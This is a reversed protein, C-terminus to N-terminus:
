TKFQGIQMQVQESLRNLQQSGSSARDAGYAVGDAVEGISDISINIDKAVTYQEKAASAIQGAMQNIVSIASVVEELKMSANDANKVSTGARESSLEMVEVSRKAESQLKRIMDAIEGTSEQTRSALTRVEDAVVAFGRGNEGARAAEIAANLALLNTQEAIGTIVDLVQSISNSSDELRQIVGRAEQIDQSLQHISDRNATVVTRGQEVSGNAEQAADAAEAANSAVEQASTAMEHAATAVQDIENRQRQVGQNTEDAIDSASTAAAGMDHISNAVDSVLHRLKGTFANIWHALEAVESRGSVRIQRTLDGEGEALDRVMVVMTQLPKAIRGAMGWLLVLAVGGIVVAGLLSIEVTHEAKESLTADLKNVSALAVDLPLEIVVAWTSKTGLAFIPSVVQFAGNFETIWAEGKQVQALLANDNQLRGGLPQGIWGADATTAAIRGNNSIISVNGQGNYISQNLSEVMTQLFNLHIDTGAIGLFKGNMDLVPAVLSTMIVQKGQVDFVAPDIMCAQRKEMSCLYWESARTGTDTMTENYRDGIAQLTMTGDAARNWYPAFIGAEDSHTNGGVFAKDKADYQNPEWATYIGGIVENARLINALMQTHSERDILEGPLHGESSMFTSALQQSLGMARNLSGEVRAAEASAKAMLDDKVITAVSDHVYTKTFAQAQKFSYLSYGILASISVLM